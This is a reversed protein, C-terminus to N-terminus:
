KVKLSEAFEIAQEHDYFSSKDQPNVKAKVMIEIISSEIVIVRYHYKYRRSNFTIKQGKEEQLTWDERIVGEISGQERSHFNAVLKKAMGFRSGFKTLEKQISEHDAAKSIKMSYEVGNTRFLVEERSGGTEEQVRSQPKGPFLISVDGLQSNYIVSEKQAKAFNLSIFFTLGYLFLIRM